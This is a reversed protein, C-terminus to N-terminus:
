TLIVENNMNRDVQKVSYSEGLLDCMGTQLTPNSISGGGRVLLLDIAAADVSAVGTLNLGNYTKSVTNQNPDEFKISAGFRTAGLSRAM